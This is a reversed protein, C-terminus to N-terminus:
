KHKKRKFKLTIRKRKPNIKYASLFILVSSIMLNILANFQWFTMGLVKKSINLGPFVSGGMQGFQAMLLSAFSAIPNFYMLFFTDQYRAAYNGYNTFKLSIYLYTIFATGIYLFIIVAYSLVNSATSRKLYTSFFMGISGMTIAIVIYFLFLQALEVVSIGGFLFIISFVPISSVILLIIQSLSAFLKGLIISSYRLETSLLIDLTQKEREGSIAGATLSPAILTILGFQIAALFAYAGFIDNANIRYYMNNRMSVKIIFVTVLALISVYVGILAAAKWGRMKVKLEKLLVPNLNFNIKRAKNEM